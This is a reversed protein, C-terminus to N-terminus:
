EILPINLQTLCQSLSDNGLKLAFFFGAEFM